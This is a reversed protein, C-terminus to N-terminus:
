LECLDMYKFISKNSLSPHTKTKSKALTQIISLFSIGNITIEAVLDSKFLLAINETLEDVENRKNELLIFEQVQSLLQSLLNMVKERSIVNNKM